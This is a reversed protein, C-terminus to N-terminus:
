HLSVANAAKVANFSPHQIACPYFAMERTAFVLRDSSSQQRQIYNMPNICVSREMGGTLKFTPALRLTGYCVSVM